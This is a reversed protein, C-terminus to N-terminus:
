LSSLGEPIFGQYVGEGARRGARFRVPQCHHGPEHIQVEGPRQGGQQRFDRSLRGVYGTGAVAINMAEKKGYGYGLREEM